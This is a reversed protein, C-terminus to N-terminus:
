RNKTPRKRTKASRAEDIAARVFATADAALADLHEPPMGALLKALKPHSTKAVAVRLPAGATTRELMVSAPGAERGRLPKPRFVFRRVRASTPAGAFARLWWDPVQPGINLQEVTAWYPSPLAADWMSAELGISSKDLSLEALFGHEFRMGARTSIPALVDAWDSAHKNFLTEVRKEGATDRKAFSLAIFEGRPDGLEILRDGVVRRLELDDPKALIAAIATDRTLAAM